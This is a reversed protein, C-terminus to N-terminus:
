EPKVTNENLMTIIDDFATDTQSKIDEVYSAWVDDDNIDMEGTIFQVSLERARKDCTGEYSLQAKQGSEEPTLYVVPPRDYPAVSEQKANYYMVFPYGLQEERDWLVTSKYLTAKEFDRADQDDTRLVPKEEREWTGPLLDSSWALGMHLPDPEYGPLNGGIYTMWYKGEYRQVDQAGEWQPNLLCLGGDAQLCDWGSDKQALIRGEPEWHLLNRSRAIWTEYGEREAGPVHRAYVMRWTGDELRIVNPCDIDAGDEQLVMGYKVPTKMEEYVVKMEAETIFNKKKM